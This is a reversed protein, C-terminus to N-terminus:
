LDYIKKKYIFGRVARYNMVRHHQVYEIGQWRHWFSQLPNEHNDPDEYRRKWEILLVIVDFLAYVIHKSQRLTKEDSWRIFRIHNPDRTDLRNEEPAPANIALAGYLSLKGPKLDMRLEANIWENSNLENVSISQQPYAYNMYELAMLIALRDCNGSFTLRLVSPSTLIARVSQCETPIPHFVVRYRNSISEHIRIIATVITTLSRDTFWALQLVSMPQGKLRLINNYPGITQDRMRRISIQDTETDLAVIFGQIANSTLKEIKPFGWANIAEALQRDLERWSMIVPTPTIFQIGQSRAIRRLDDFNEPLSQSGIDPYFHERWRYDRAALNLQIDPNESRHEERLDQLVCRQRSMSELRINLSDAPTHVQALLQTITTTDM